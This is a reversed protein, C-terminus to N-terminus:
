ADMVFHTLNPDGAESNRLQVSPRSSVHSISLCVGVLVDDNLYVTNSAFM